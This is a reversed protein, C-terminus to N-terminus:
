MKRGRLIPLEGHKGTFRDGTVNQPIISEGPTLDREREPTPERDPPPDRPPDVGLAAGEGPPQAGQEFPCFDNDDISSNTPGASPTASQQIESVRHRLQDMHRKWVQGRGVDVHYTVPGLKRLM